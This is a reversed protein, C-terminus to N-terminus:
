PTPISSLFNQIIGDVHLILHPSPLNPDLALFQEDYSKGFMETNEQVPM